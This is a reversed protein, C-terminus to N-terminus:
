FAAHGGIGRFAAWYYPRGYRQDGTHLLDQKALSLAESIPRGEHKRYRHFRIMLEASARSDVPWLSAVVVPVGAVFFARAMGMMGEGRYYREVGTQCASLVVLRTLPLRMECIEQAQLVGDVGPRPSSGLEKSLVLYSHAPSREDIVCHMAFHAVDAKMLEDRITQERAERGILRTRSMSPYMEAVETAERAADSLGGLRPFEHRDFSPNGVSLIREERSGGKQDAMDTCVAFLTASPSVTVVYDEVLFRDNSILADWPLRNLVKDPVIYLSKSGGLYPEVPAILKSYLERGFESATAEDEVTSGKLASLYNSVMETLATQSCNVITSDFGSRSLIWIVVTDELVAYQLLRAAVPLRAQIQEITFPHAVPPAKSKNEATAATGTSDLLSRGRSAEAYEFAGRVEGMRSYEFDIGLDYVSQEVDFFNNRNEEEFINTRHKDMLAMVDTLERRAAAVDDQAVFCVLRGKYAQYLFTPYHLSAYLEIGRDYSSLANVYDGTDRRLNGMQLAAYAMKEQGARESAHAEAEAYAMDLTKFADELKRLKGYMLGLHAYAVSLSAFDEPIMLAFRLAEQQCDTAANPLGFTSLALAIIGYHRGLAISGLSSKEIGPLSLSIETFCENRNALVRYYEVLADVASVFCSQDNVTGAEARALKASTIAKSYENRAFEIASQYFLARARLWRYGKGECDRALAGFLNASQETRAMEMLTLAMGCIALQEEGKDGVASLAHRAQTYLRFTQDLAAQQYSKQAQRLLDRAAKASALQQQSASKYFAALDFAYHDGAKRIDLEGSYALAEIPTRDANASRDSIGALHAALLQSTTKERSSALLTWAKEGDRQQYAKLIVDIVDRQGQESQRQREILQELRRRAEDAWPGQTDKELYKKWADEAQGRLGLAERALAVNFLAELQSHSLDLARNLHELSQSLEEADRELGAAQAAKGKELLAAGLDSHVQVNNPDAKLAEKFEEIAEEFKKEALYLRGAAHHTAANPHKLVAELLVSEALNRATRDVKEDGGRTTSAPAYNFGSIRAELPRQDRYSYALAATGKSVESQYFFLRWIGLGVGLVVVAAAASRLYPVLEQRRWWSQRSAESEKSPGQAGLVDGSRGQVSPRPATLEEAVPEEGIRASVNSSPSPDKVYRSLAKTYTVQQRGEPTSLFSAEFETRDSESLERQVYEEIMEDEALLVQDFLENDVMMREELQEREDEGLQGLLYRRILGDDQNQYAM